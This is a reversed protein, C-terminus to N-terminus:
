QGLPHAVRAVEAHLRRVAEFDDPDPYDVTWNSLRMQIQQARYAKNM